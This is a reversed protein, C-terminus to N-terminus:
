DSDKDLVMEVRRNKWRNKLDSDPVVPDLAGLGVTRMSAAPIGLQVLAAKVAEASPAVLEGSSGGGDWSVTNKPWEGSFSALM